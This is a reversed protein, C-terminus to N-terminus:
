SCPIAWPTESPDKWSPRAAPRQYTAVHREGQWVSVAMASAHDNLVQVAHELAAGDNALNAMVFTLCAGDPLRPYFLFAAM